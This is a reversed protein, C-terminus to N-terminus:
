VLIFLATVQSFLKSIDAKNKDSTHAHLVYCPQLTIAATHHEYISGLRM